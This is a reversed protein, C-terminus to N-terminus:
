MGICKCGYRRRDVSEPWGCKLSRRVSHRLCIFPHIRVYFKLAYLRVLAHTPTRTSYPVAADLGDIGSDSGACRKRGLGLLVRVAAHLRM